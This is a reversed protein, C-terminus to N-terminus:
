TSIKILVWNAKRNGYGGGMSDRSNEKPTPIAVCLSFLQSKAVHATTTGSRSSLPSLPLPPLNVQGTPNKERRDNRKKGLILHHLCGSGEGLDVM